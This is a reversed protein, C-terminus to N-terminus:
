RMGGSLLEAVAAAKEAVSGQIMRATGHALPPAYFSVTGVPAYPGFGDLDLEGPHLGVIERTRGKRVDLLSPSRLPRGGTQITLVVPTTTTVMDRAGGELERWLVLRNDHAEWEARVVGTVHRMGLFHALMPGVVGETTDEAQLGALVVKPELPKLVAALLRATVCPDAYADRSDLVHMGRGIGRSLAQRLVDRAREPGVTVATTAADMSAGLAVAEEMAYQSWACTKYSLSREDIWRGAPRITGTPAEHDIVQKICVAISM